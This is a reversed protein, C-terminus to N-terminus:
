VRRIVSGGSYRTGPDTGALALWPACYCAGFAWVGGIIRKARRVTCLRHARMPHCIAVYREATFATITLISAYTSTEAALARLICFAEGLRWPYASWFSYTELPLGLVLQEVSLVLM